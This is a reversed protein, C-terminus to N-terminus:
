ATAAQAAGLWRQAAAAADQGPARHFTRRHAPPSPLALPLRLPRWDRAVIATVETAGGAYLSLEDLRHPRWGPGPRWRWGNTAPWSARRGARAATFATKVQIGGNEAVRLGLRQATQAPEAQLTIGHAGLLEALPLKRHWAGMARDRGGTVALAAARGASRGRGHPRWRLTAVARMVEDLQAGGDRRLALDLCPAVLAGKTYYSVTANPTNEDQRYYKVWADFSAQAM